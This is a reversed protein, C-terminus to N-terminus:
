RSLAADISEFVITNVGQRGRYYWGVPMMIDEVVRM